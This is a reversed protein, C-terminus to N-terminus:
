RPRRERAADCAHRVAQEEIAAAHARIQEPTDFAVGAPPSSFSSDTPTMSHCVACRQEVISAVQAFPVAATGAPEADDPRIAIAIALSRSRRARRSRM